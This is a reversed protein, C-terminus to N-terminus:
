GIVGTSGDKAREAVDCANGHGRRESLEADIRNLVSNVLDRSRVFKQIDTRCVEGNDASDVRRKLVGMWSIAIVLGNRVQLDCVRLGGYTANFRDQAKRLEDSIFGVPM